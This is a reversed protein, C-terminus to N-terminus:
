KFWQKRGWDALFVISSILLVSAGSAITKLFIMEEFSAFIYLMYSFSALLAALNLPKVGRIFNDGNDKMLVFKLNFYSSFALPIMVTAFVFDFWATAGEYRLCIFAYFAAAFAPAALSVLRLPRLKKSGEDVLTNFQGYNSCALFTFMTAMGLFSLNNDNQFDNACVIILISYIMQIAFSWVACVALQFYMPVSKKFLRVVGYISTFVLIAISPLYSLIETNGM